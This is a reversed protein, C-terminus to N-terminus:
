GHHMPVWQVPRWSRVGQQCWVMLCPVGKVLGQKNMQPGGHYHCRTASAWVTPLYTTICGVPICEQELHKKLMMEVLKTIKVSWVPLNHKWLCRDTWLLLYPIEPGLDRGPWQDWTREPPYPIGPVLDRQSTPYGQYWTGETPPTPYVWPYSIWPTPYLDPTPYVWPYPIWPPPLTDPTPYGPPLIDPSPTAYVWPTPYGPSYLNSGRDTRIRSSHKKTRCINEFVKVTNDM